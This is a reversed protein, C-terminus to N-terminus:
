WKAQQMDSIEKALGTLKPAGPKRSSSTKAFAPKKVSAADVQAARKKLGVIRRTEIEAKAFAAQLTLNPEAAVVRNAVLGVTQAHPVLDPNETYFQEVAKTITWQQQSVSQAVRPIELLIQEKLTDRSTQMQQMLGVLVEKMAKPDDEILARTLLEDDIVPASPSALISAPAVPTPILAPTNAKFGVERAQSLEASLSNTYELLTRYRDELSEEEVQVGEESEGGTQEEQEEEAQGDEFEENREPENVHESKTDLGQMQAIEELIPDDM